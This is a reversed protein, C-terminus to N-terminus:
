QVPHKARPGPNTGSQRLKRPSTRVTNASISYSTASNAISPSRIVASSSSARSTSDTPRSLLIRPNPRIQPFPGRTPKGPSDKGPSLSTSTPTAKRSPPFHKDVNQEQISLQFDILATEIGVLRSQRWAISALQSVFDSEQYNVPNYSDRYGDLHTHWEDSDDPAILINAKAAFGHKLANKSSAAKGEATVPGKSKSGNIRAQEARTNM